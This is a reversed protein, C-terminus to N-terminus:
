LPLDKGFILILILDNKDKLTAIMTIRSFDKDLSLNGFDGNYFYDDDTIEELSGKLSTNGKYLIIDKEGKFIKVKSEETYTNLYDQAVEETKIFKKGNHYGDVKILKGDVIKNLSASTFKLIVRQANANLSTALLLFLIIKKM